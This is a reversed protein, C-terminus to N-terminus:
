FHFGASAVLPLHDRWQWHGVLGNGASDRVVAAAGVCLIGTVGAGSPGGCLAIGGALSGNLSLFGLGEVGLDYMGGNVKLHLFSTGIDYAVAASDAGRLTHVNMLTAGTTFNAQLTPMDAFANPASALTLALILRKVKSVGVVNGSGEVNGSLQQTDSSLGCGVCGEVSHDSDKHNRDSSSEVSRERRQVSSVNRSGRGVSQGSGLERSYQDSSENRVEIHMHRGYGADHIKVWFGESRLTSILRKELAPGFLNRGRGGRNTRVDVANGTTHRSGRPWTRLLSTVTVRDGVLQRLTGIAVHIRPNVSFWHSRDEDAKFEPTWPAIAKMAAVLLLPNM